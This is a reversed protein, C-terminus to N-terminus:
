MHCGCNSNNWSVVAVVATGYLVFVEQKGHLLLLQQQKRSGCCNISNYLAVFVISAKYLLATMYILLVQLQQEM